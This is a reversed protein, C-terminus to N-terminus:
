RVCSGSADMLVVCLRSTPQSSSHFCDLEVSRLLARLGTSNVLESKQAGIRPMQSSYSMQMYTVVHETSARVM